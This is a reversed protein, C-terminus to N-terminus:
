CGTHLLILYVLSVSYTHSKLGHNQLVDEGFLIIVFIILIHLGIDAAVEVNLKSSQHGSFGLCCSTLSVFAALDSGSFEEAGLALCTLSHRGDSEKSLRGLLLFSYSELL